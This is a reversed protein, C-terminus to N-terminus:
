GGICDEMKWNEVYVYGFYISFLRGYFVGGFGFFMFCEVWNFM